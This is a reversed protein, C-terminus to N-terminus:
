RRYFFLRWPSKFGERGEKDVAWVRWRGPQMGSFKFEYFHSVLGSTPGNSTVRLPQPNVCGRSIRVGGACHDVEVAYSAAGEVPSWELRTLRPYHDFVADEAPSLPLPAPLHVGSVKESESIANGAAPESRQLFITLATKSEPAVSMSKEQHQGNPGLWDNFGNARVRVTFPVHPAPMTFNGDSSKANAIWCTEPDSTHCLIFETNEVPLGTKADVSKGVLVGNKPLLSVVVSARVNGDDVIVEPISASPTAFFPLRPPWYGGMSHDYFLKYKGAKNVAIAFRGQADSFACPVVVGPKNPDFDDPFACVRVCGAAEGLNDQVQGTIAYPSQGPILILAATLLSSAILEFM